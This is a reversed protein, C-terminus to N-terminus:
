RNETGTMGAFQVELIENKREAAVRNVTVALERLAHPNIKSLVDPNYNIVTILMEPQSEWLDAARWVLRRERLRALAEPDTPAAKLDPQRLIRASPPEESANNCADVDGHFPCSTLFLECKNSPSRYSCQARQELIDAEELLTRSPTVASLPM